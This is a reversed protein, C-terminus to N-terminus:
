SQFLPIRGQEDIGACSRSMRDSRVTGQDHSQPAEPACDEMQFNSIRFSAQDHLFSQLAEQQEYELLLDELQLPVSILM